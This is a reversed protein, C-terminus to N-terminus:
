SRAGYTASMLEDCIARAVEQLVEWEVQKKNVLEIIVEDGRTTTVRHIEIRKDDGRWTYVIKAM